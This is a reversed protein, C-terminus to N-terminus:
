RYHDVGDVTSSTLRGNAVLLQLHARTEIVALMQNFGDLEDLHRLRRTWRLACSVEYATACGSRVAAAAEALRAEHHALLADIREHASASVAGHAPLLRMDPMARVVALSQLYDRLPLVSPAPEFGISPTIHPLVHDGAFLVGAALDALVVHGQTHGPTPVVDLVRSTLEIRSRGDFWADPPEYGAGGRHDDLMRAMRELVPRAGSAALEARQAEMPPEGSLLIDLGPQEGRGLIIRTGFDRRVALAQTYHDRHVHTVLFQRVDRLQYGLSRLAQELASRSEELAWGSDVLVLGAEDEIAYVNVSRLGDTPLPLPIRHVGPAVAFAGPATWDETDTSGETM